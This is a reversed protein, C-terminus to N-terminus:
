VKVVRYIRFILLFEFFWIHDVILDRSFSFHNTGSKIMKKLYRIKNSLNIQIRFQKNVVYGDFRLCREFILLRFLITNTEPPNKWNCCLALITLTRLAISDCWLQGEGVRVGNRWNWVGVVGSWWWWWWRGGYWSSSVWCGILRM